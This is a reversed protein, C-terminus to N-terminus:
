YTTYELIMYWEKITHVRIFFFFYLATEAEHLISRIFEKRRIVRGNKLIMSYGACCQIDNLTM